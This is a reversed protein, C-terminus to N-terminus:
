RRGAGRGWADGRWTPCCGRPRQLDELEQQSPSGESEVMLRSRVRLGMQGRGLPLALGETSVAPRGGAQLVSVLRRAGKTALSQGERAGAKAVGSRLTLKHPMRVGTSAPERNGWPNVAGAELSLFAQAAESFGRLHFLRPGCPLPPVEPARRRQLGLPQASAQLSRKSKTVHPPAMLQARASDPFPDAAGSFAVQSQPPSFPLRRPGSSSAPFRTLLPCPLPQPRLRSHASGAPPTGPSPSSHDPAVPLLLPSWQGAAVM